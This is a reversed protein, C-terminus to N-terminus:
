SSKADRKGLLEIARHTLDQRLPECLIVWLVIYLIQSQLLEGQGKPWWLSVAMAVFATYPLMGISRLVLNDMPLGELFMGVIIAAVWLEINLHYEDVLTLIIGTPHLMGLAVFIVGFVAITREYKATLLTILLNKM